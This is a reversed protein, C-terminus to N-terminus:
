TRVSCGSHTHIFPPIQVASYCVHIECKLFIHLSLLLICAPMSLRNKSIAPSVNLVCYASLTKCSYVKM